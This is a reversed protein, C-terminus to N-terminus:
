HYPWEDVEGVIPTIEIEVRPHEKDYRVESEDHRAVITCNDDDLVGADVLIDLTGEILNCLDVKRKTGMFYRCTVNVPVSIPFDFDTFEKVGQAALEWLAAKAYEKYKASPSIFPRGTARNVLIQQSNKKTIPNGSIVFQM